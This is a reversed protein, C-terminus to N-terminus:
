RQRRFISAARRAIIRPAARLVVNDPVWGITEHDAYDRMQRATAAPMQIGQVAVGRTHPGNYDNPADDTLYMAPCGGDGSGSDKCLFQIRM